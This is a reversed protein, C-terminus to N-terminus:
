AWMLDNILLDLMSDRCRIRKVTRDATIMVAGSRQRGNYQTMQELTYAGVDLFAIVDDPKTSKPFLRYRPLRIILSQIERRYKQLHPIKKLLTNITTEGDIDFFVDGGDCLPGALKFPSVHEKDSKNAVIAHFYWKYDFADLLTNFGADIALWATDDRIKTNQVATLLIAADGVIRRGPEVVIEIDSGMKDKIIPVVANAIDHENITAHLYEPLESPAQGKVYNVPIGGGINVHELRKGLQKEIELAQSMLAKTGTKFHELATTQSGIHMHIGVVSILESYSTAMKITAPIEQPLIGFKSEHTGTVLGPHAETRIEPIVRIAISAKQNIRSCLKVIRELEFISDINISKIGLRIAYLLEKVTKAAGNLIIQEPRFGVTIAKFLEGLSNVEISCGGKKIVDLIALNSCAKSAYYINTKTHYRRFTEIVSHVNDRIRKESFVFLPTSHKSTLELVDIKDMHLHGNVNELYESIEWPHMNELWRARV